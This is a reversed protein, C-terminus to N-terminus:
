LLPVPTHVTPVNGFPPLTVNSSCAVTSALPEYAFVAVTVDVVGSGSGVSLDEVDVGM